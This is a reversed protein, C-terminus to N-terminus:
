FFTHEEDETKAQDVAQDLSMSSDTDDADDDIDVECGYDWYNMPAAIQSQQQQHVVKTKM